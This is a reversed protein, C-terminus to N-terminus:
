VSPITLEIGANPLNLPARPNIPVLTVSKPLLPAAPKLANALDAKDIPLTNKVGGIIKIVATKPAIKNTTFLTLSAKLFFSSVPVLNDFDNATNCGNIVNTPM